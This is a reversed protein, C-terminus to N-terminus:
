QGRPNNALNIGVGYKYVLEGGRRATQYVFICSLLAMGATLTRVTYRIKPRFLWGFIKTRPPLMRPSLSGIAAMVALIASIGAVIETREAWEQHDDVIKGADGVLKGAIERSDEGTEVAVIAGISGAVLLAAATWAIYRHNVFASVVAIGAGILLLVIPFHVVAPHLPDPLSFM